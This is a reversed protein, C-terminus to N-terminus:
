HLMSVLKKRIKKYEELSDLCKQWEQMSYYIKGLAALQNHCSDRGAATTLLHISQKVAIEAESFLKFYRAIIGMCFLMKCSVMGPDKLVVKKMKRYDKPPDTWSNLLGDKLLKWLEWQDKALFSGHICSLQLSCECSVLKKVKVSGVSPEPFNDFIDFASKELLTPDSIKELLKKAPNLVVEFSGKRPRRFNENEIESEVFFNEFSGKRPRIFNENEIESEM